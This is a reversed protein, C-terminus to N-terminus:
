NSCPCGGLGTISSGEATPLSQIEKPLIEECNNDQYLKNISERIELLQAFLEEIKNCIDSSLRGKINNYLNSYYNYWYDLQDILFKWFKCQLKINPDGSMPEQLKKIIANQILVEAAALEELTIGDIDSLAPELISTLNKTATESSKPITTAINGDISAAINTFTATLMVSIVLSIMLTQRKM